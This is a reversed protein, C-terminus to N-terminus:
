NQKDADTVLYRIIREFVDPDKRGEEDVYITPNDNIEIVFYKGNIEKIDLGYLGTGILNATKLSLAKLRDPINNRSIPFTRGWREHGNIQSKVKWGGKPMYYKIYYLIEGNLVAVRHDFDTRLFEQVILLDSKRSYKSLTQKLETENEVKDVQNSFRTYPAKIVIPFELEKKWGLEGERHYLFTRPMPISHQRFLFFLAVKNACIRISQSDDIVRCGYLEALRSAIYATNLPDTTARIFLADYKPLSMLDKKYILTFSYGLNEAVAQFKKLSTFEDKNTINYKEVFCAIKSM